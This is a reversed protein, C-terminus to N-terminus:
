PLITQLKNNKKTEGKKSKEKKGKKKKMGKKHECENVVDDKEAWRWQMVM